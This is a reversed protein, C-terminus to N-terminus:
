SFDEPDFFAANPNDRGIDAAAKSGICSQIGLLDDQGSQRQFELMGHPPDLIATFMQQGARMRAVMMVPDGRIAIPLAVDEVDIALDDHIGAGIAHPRLTGVLFSVHYGTAERAGVRDRMKACSGPGDRGVLRRDARVAADATGTGAKGDLAHNVFHRASNVAVGDRHAALVHDLRILHRVRRDGAHTVIGAIIGAAQPKAGFEQIQRLDARALPLTFPIPSQNADTKGREVCVAWPAASYAPRPAATIGPNSLQVARIRVSPLM